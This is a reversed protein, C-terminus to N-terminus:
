IEIAGDEDVYYIASGDHSCVLCDKEVYGDVGLHYWNIGSKKWENRAIEGNKYFYQWEGNEDKQWGIKQIRDQVTKEVKEHVQNAQDVNYFSLWLSIIGVILVVFGLIISVWNNIDSLTINEKKVLSVVFLGIISTALVYVVFEGWFDRFRSILSGIKDNAVHKNKIKILKRIIVAQVIIILSLCFVVFIIHEPVTIWQTM